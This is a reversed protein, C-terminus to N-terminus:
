WRFPNLVKGVNELDGRIQDFVSKSEDEQGSAATKPEAPKSSAPIVIPLQSPGRVLAKPIERAAPEKTEDPAQSQKEPKTSEQSLGPETKTQVEAPTLFLAGKEAPLKPELEVPKAAERRAATQKVEVASPPLEFAGPEVGRGKLKQDINNLIGSSVASAQGDQRTESRAAIVQVSAGNKFVEAQEPPAPLEELNRGDKKLVSDIQSILKANDPAPVAVTKVPDAFEPLTAAPPRLAATETKADIGKGKLSEDVSGVLAGASNNAKSKEEKKADASRFPNLWAFIGPSAEKEAPKKPAVQEQWSEPKKEDKKGSDSSSFPNVKDVVRRFFGKEEGPEEFVIEKKAILEMDKPKSAVATEQGNQPAASPRRDRMLLMALPDQKEKGLQALENKAQAAFRSEPYHQIVAEYALAAKVNNKEQKYSEGLYFLSKIATPTGGYRRVIEEFRDRAAPYKEQQLYFAAVSFAHEALYEISKALKERAEAAYPSKPYNVVVTEFYGKAIETNKQDRDVSTFQDLHALGLRYTVFPINENTPHMSQFEKFANIAEPYQKNLYYADASKLEAETLLPSFPHDTKIKNFADIARVYKKESLYREGEAFLAESTPDPKAESRFWPVSPLSPMSVSSCGAAGLTMLAAILSLKHKM